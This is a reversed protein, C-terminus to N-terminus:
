KYPGMRADRLMEFKRALESETAKSYLVWGYRAALEDPSAGARLERTVADPMARDARAARCGHRTNFVVLTGMGLLM